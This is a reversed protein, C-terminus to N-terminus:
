KAIVYEFIMDRGNENCDEIFVDPEVSDIPSDSGTLYYKGAYYKIFIKRNGEIINSTAVLGYDSSDTKEGVITALMNKQLVSCIINSGSSTFTNTLVFLPVKSLIPKKLSVFKKNWEEFPFKIEFLHTKKESFFDLFGHIVPLIGGKCYRLDIIVKSIKEKDRNLEANIDKLFEYSNLADFIKIIAINNQTLKYYYSTKKYSNEISYVIKKIQEEKTKLYVVTTDEYLLENLLVGYTLLNNPIHNVSLIEDGSEVVSNSLCSNHLEKTIILKGFSDRYFSFPLGKKSTYNTIPLAYENGENSFASLLLDVIYEEATFAIHNDTLVSDINPYYSVINAIATEVDIYNTDIEIKFLNNVNKILNTILLNPKPKSIHYKEL